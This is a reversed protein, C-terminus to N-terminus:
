RGDVHFGGLLLRGLLLDLAPRRLRDLGGAHGLLGGRLPLDLRLDGGEVVRAAVDVRRDAGIGFRDALLVDLLQRLASVGARGRRAASM